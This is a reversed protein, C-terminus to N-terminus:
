DARWLFDARDIQWKSNWYGTAILADNGKSLYDVSVLMIDPYAIGSVFYRLRNTSRLGEIGTGGVVGVLARDSDQRPYVFLAALRSDTVTRHALTAAERTIQLPCSGLLAHWATNTDANGYLIM